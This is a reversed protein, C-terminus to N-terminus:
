ATPEESTPFRWNRDCTPLQCVNTRGSRKDFISDYEEILRTLKGWQNSTLKPDIVQRSTSTTRERSLVQKTTKARELPDGGTAKALISIKANWCGFLQMFQRGLLLAQGNGELVQIRSWKPSENIIKISTDVYGIVRVPLNCVGFAQGQSSVLRHGLKLERMTGIDMVSVKAGTDLLALQSGM